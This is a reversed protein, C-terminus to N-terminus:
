RILLVLHAKVVFSKQAYADDHDAHPQHSMQFRAHVIVDGFWNFRIRQCLYNLRRQLTKM